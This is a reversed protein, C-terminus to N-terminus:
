NKLTTYKLVKLTTEPLRVFKNKSPGFYKEAVVEYDSLSPIERALGEYDIVVYKSNIKKPASEKGYFNKYEPAYYQFQRFTYTTILTTDQSKYNSKIYFVPEITPPIASAQYKVTDFSTKFLFIVIIIYLPIFLKKPLLNKLFVVTFVPFVISLPLTYQALELNYIFLLPVIYSLLYVLLFPKKRAEFFAAVTSIAFFGPTYGINFLKILNLFRDNIYTWFNFPKGFLMDHWIFYKSTESNVQRFEAPGTIFILPILWIAVGALLGVIQSPKRSWAILGVIIPLDTPRVGLSLGAILGAFPVQYYIALASVLLFFLGPINSIAIESLVFHVPLSIFVLSTLIAIKKDFLKKTLLYFPIVSLAGLAASLFTLSLTPNEFYFNLIKGILIYLPYGPPHPQHKVLSFDDFALAFQVSDWDELWPSMFFLRLVFAILFIVQIM